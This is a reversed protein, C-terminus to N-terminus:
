FLRSIYIAGTIIMLGGALRYLRGRFKVSMISSLRGVLFLAPTTGLGFLMLMAAGRLLGEVRSGAAAGAGAAAILSTYLLGCPIFGLVLGMPFYVGLGGTESITRMSKIILSTLYSKSAAKGPRSFYARWGLIGIGMFIMTSGILAIAASQLKEISKTIGLFSGTLGIIGGLISYTTIRGLSYLIYAITRREGVSISYAAVAPGCMGICHGFGGMLGTMFMLVYVSDISSM